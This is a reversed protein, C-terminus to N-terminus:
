NYTDYKEYEIYRKEYYVYQRGYFLPSLLLALDERTTSAERGDIPLCAAAIFTISPSPAWRGSEGTGCM